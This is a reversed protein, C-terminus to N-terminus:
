FAKKEAKEARAVKEAKAEKVAEAANLLKLKLLEQREWMLKEKEPTDHDWGLLHMFGHAMVLCLAELSSMSAHEREAEERCIVIDGLPIAGFPQLASFCMGGEHWLPFSLVDTPEDLGRYQKNLNAMDSRDLFSMSFEIEETCNEGMWQCLLPLEEELISEFKEIVGSSFPSLPDEESDIRISLKM